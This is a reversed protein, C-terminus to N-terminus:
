VFLDLLYNTELYFARLVFFRNRTKGDCNERKRAYNKNKCILSHSVRIENIHNLITSM